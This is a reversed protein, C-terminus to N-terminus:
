RSRAAASAVARDRVRRDDGPRGAVGGGGRGAAPDPRDRHADAGPAQPDLRRDHVRLRDEVTGAVVKVKRRGDAQDDPVQQVEARGFGRAFQDALVRHRQCGATQEHERHQVVVAVRRVLALAGVGRFHGRQVHMRHRLDGAEEARKVQHRGPHGICPLPVLVSGRNRNRWAGAEDECADGALPSALPLARLLARLFGALGRNVEAAHTWIIAHPGEPVVALRADALLVALRKGTAGPPMVRDQAGQVILVPVTIRAVDARFDERWAVACGLAAAASVRIATHFSNQWAQDSVKSGGLLDLNYYRDLYTKVAAPRDATLDVLFDDYVGRDAGDPNAASRPLFPPLPALLAAARVRRQGYTALYRTVEGTGSCCGALVTDRLDLEELLVNLDAALTDYDYGTAPRSSAGGGRRDYTIVRYGAALLSTEQKEWSRGDALYGHVLVVPAGAGHDEYYIGIDGTNERGVTVYPM